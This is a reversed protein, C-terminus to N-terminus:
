NATHRSADNDEKADSGILRTMRVRPPQKDAVAQDFVQQLSNVLRDPSWAAHIWATVPVRVYNGIWLSHMEGTKRSRKVHIRGKQELHTASPLDLVFLLRPFTDTKAVPIAEECLRRHCLAWRKEGTGPKGSRIQRQEHALFVPRPMADSSIELGIGPAKRLRLCNEKALSTVLTLFTLILLSDDRLALYYDGQKSGSGQPSTDRHLALLWEWLLCPGCSDGVPSSELLEPWRGFLGSKPKQSDPYCGQILAHRWAGSHVSHRALWQSFITGPASYRELLRKFAAQFLRRMFDDAELKDHKDVLAFNESDGGSLVNGFCANLFSSPSTREGQHARVFGSMIQMQPFSLTPDYAVLFPANPLSLLEKNSGVGTEAGGGSHFEEMLALVTHRIQPEESGFGVFILSRSRIRDRLLDRAWVEKGFDQLERETLLIRPQNKKGGRCIGHAYHHACGNTKYIRLYPHLGETRSLVLAGHKRYTDLNHVVGFKKCNKDRNYACENKPDNKCPQGATAHKCRQDCAHGFSRRYANELCTDYNTTIVESILGERILYALYRHADSPQLTCFLGTELAHLVTKTKEKGSLWQAIEALQGLSKKKLADDFLAQISERATGEVSHDNELKDRIYCKLRENLYWVTPEFLPNTESRATASFGAGIFPVGRGEMIIQLLREFRAQFSRNNTTEAM